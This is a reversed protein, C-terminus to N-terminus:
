DAVAGGSATDFLIEAFVTQVSSQKPCGKLCDRPTLYIVQMGIRQM